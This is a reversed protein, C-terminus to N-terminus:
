RQSRITARPDRASVNGAHEVAFRLLISGATGVLGAAFRTAKNRKPLVSFILSSITLASATRWMIGSFGRKLPRGVYEVRSAEREMAISATIEAARGINGFARIVPSDCVFDFLSGVSMVSCAGFLVPLSRRSAQWLPVATNAVLVGTYTSLGLGFIGALMGLPRSFVTGQLLVAGTSAGGAGTLIWAGLNMPSTPRFVRLMNLFRAPRGLDYVLLAASISAGAVGITQCRQILERNAAQNRLQLAGALVMSTGALGGVYYYAPIAWTWVSKQLMPREYYTADAPDPEPLEPWVSIQGALDKSLAGCSRQGAAEGELLGTDPNIDRGDTTIPDVSNRYRTIM